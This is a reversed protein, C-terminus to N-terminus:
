QEAVEWRVSLKAWMQGVFHDVQGQGSEVIRLPLPPKVTCTCTAPVQWVVSSGMLRWHPLPLSPNDCDRDWDRDYHCNRHITLWKRDVLASLKL